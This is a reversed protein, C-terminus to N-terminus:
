NLFREKTLKNEILSNNYTQIFAKLFNVQEIPIDVQEIINNQLYPDEPRSYLAVVNQGDFIILYDDTILNYMNNQYIIAYPFHVDFASKGFAFAQEPYNLLDLITPLVDLQQTFSKEIKPIKKNPHYIVLPIMYMGMQTRYEADQPQFAHDATLIFYTNDFWDKQSAKEFFRKLSWDAYIISEYINGDQINFKQKYYKPLSYPHHSSLTFISSFFPKTITDIQKTIYDLFCDDYIGWFGDYDKDDNYEDKGYYYDYGAVNAFSTFNLTGNKGGHFFASTYGQKKLLNAISTIQNESYNSSIYENNMLTPIGAVVAPVGEMSRTGNSFSSIIAGMKGISDLTPIYSKELNHNFLSSFELSFSELIIVVVNDQKPTTNNKPHYIPSFIKAIKEKALYEKKDLGQSFMTKILTFPTNLVISYHKPKAYHSATVISIPRLQLGGRSGIFCICIMLVLPAMNKLFYIKSYNSKFKDYNVKLTQNFWVFLWTMLIFILFIYWFDKLFKSILETFGGGADIFRFVDFTM